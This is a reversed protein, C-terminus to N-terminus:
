AKLELIMITEKEAEYRENGRKIVHVVALRCGEQLMQLNSLKNVDLLM